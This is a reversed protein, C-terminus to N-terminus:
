KNEVNKASELKLKIGALTENVETLQEHLREGENLLDFHIQHDNWGDKYGILYQSQHLEEGEKKLEQYAKVAKEYEREKAELDYYLRVREGETEEFKKTFDAYNGALENNKIILEKVKDLAGKLNEESTWYSDEWKKRDVQCKHLTHQLNMQKQKAEALEKHLNSVEGGYVEIAPVADEQNLQYKLQELASKPEQVIWTQIDCDVFCKYLGDASNISLWGNAGSNIDTFNLRNGDFHYSVWREVKSYMINVHSGTYLYSIFSEFERKSMNGFLEIGDEEFEVDAPVAEETEKLTMELARFSSDTGYFEIFAEKSKTDISNKIVGRRTEYFDYEGNTNKEWHFSDHKIFRVKGGKNMHAIAGHANLYFPMSFNTVKETVDGIQVTEKPKVIKKLYELMEKNTKFYHGTHTKLKVYRNLCSYQLTVNNLEKYNDSVYNRLEDISIDNVKGAM